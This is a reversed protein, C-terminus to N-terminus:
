KLLGLALRVQPQPSLKATYYDFIFENFAKGIQSPKKNKKTVRQNCITKKLQSM